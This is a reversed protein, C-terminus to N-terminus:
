QSDKWNSQNTFSDEFVFSHNKKSVKFRKYIQSRKYNIIEYKNADKNMEM